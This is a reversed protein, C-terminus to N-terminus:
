QIVIGDKLIKRSFMSDMELFKRHMARTHTILDTPYQQSLDKMANLVNIHIDSKERWTKPMFDDSTVVYLDIDSDDNPKGYAYSGFLIVKDLNLPKLREAIQLKLKEIDIM